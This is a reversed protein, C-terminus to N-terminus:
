WLKQLAQSRLKKILMAVMGVKLNWVQDREYVQLKKKQRLRLEM